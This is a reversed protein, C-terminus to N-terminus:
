DWTYAEPAPGGRGPFLQDLKKLIEQTMTIELAQLSGDMEIYLKTALVIRDRRTGGQSFWQGIIEESKGKGYIDAGSTSEWTWRWIWSPSVTPKM